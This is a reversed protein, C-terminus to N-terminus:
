LEAMARHCKGTTANASKGKRNKKRRQENTWEVVCIFESLRDLQSISPKKKAYARWKLCVNVRKLLWQNSAKEGGCDDDNSHRVDDNRDDNVRVLCPFWNM